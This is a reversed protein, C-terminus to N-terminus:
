EPPPRLTIRASTEKSWPRDQFSALMLTRSFGRQAAPDEPSLALCQHQHWQSISTSASSIRPALSIQKRAKSWDCFEMGSLGVHFTM